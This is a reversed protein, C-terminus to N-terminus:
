IWCVCVSTETTVTKAPVTETTVTNATVTETTVTKATVTETTVDKRFTASCVPQFHWAQHKPNNQFEKTSSFMLRPVVDLVALQFIAVVDDKILPIEDKCYVACQQHIVERKPNCKDVIDEQHFTGM